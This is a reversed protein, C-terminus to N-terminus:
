GDWTCLIPWRMNNVYVLYGGNMGLTCALGLWSARVNFIGSMEMAMFDQFVGARM